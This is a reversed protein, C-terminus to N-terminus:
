SIAGNFFVGSPASVVQMAYAMEAEIRDSRLHEMRFKSVRSGTSGAGLLGTWGFIYGASQKKIAPSKPAYTLLACKATAIYGTSETAGEVASNKIGRGVVIQKIGLVATLLDETIVGRQTYKVVDKIEPHNKLVQWTDPSLTLTIDQIDCGIQSIIAEVQNLINELPTSGALDWKTGPTYDTGWVGTKYFTNFWDSERKMLLNQMLIETADAELNLVPDANQRDQDAIDKHLAYVKAYYPTTSQKYGMGASETGPAREKAEIRLLDGKDYVYYLDSQKQVNVQPFVRNAVFNRADQMVAVSIDTLPVNVHVMSGTPNSM